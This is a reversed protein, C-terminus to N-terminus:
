RGATQSNLSRPARPVDLTSGVGPVLGCSNNAHPFAASREAAGRVRSQLPEGGYRRVGLLFLLRRLRSHMVAARPVVLLREIQELRLRDDRARQDLEVKPVSKNGPNAKLM